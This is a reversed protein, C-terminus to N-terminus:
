KKVESYNKKACNVGVNVLGEVLASNGQKKIYNISSYTLKTIEGNDLGPLQNKIGDFISYFLDSEKIGLNYELTM